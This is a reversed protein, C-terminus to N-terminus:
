RVGTAYRGAPTRLSAYVGNATARMARELDAMSVYQQGGQQMVPGTTVNIQANGGVFGGNAFAPIAAGGRAGNLYNMAFAAAKREPVIYEPGAEGVMALTPGNVVGGKAFAPVSLTPVFPIDPGPLRNFAGILKNVQRGVSNIANAIFQLVNRMAGKVTNVVGTFISKVKDGIANMAKPLFETLGIWANRIPTVVYTNFFTTIGTWTDQIWKIGTTVPERLVKNWLDVWPQVFVQYALAGLVKMAYSFENSIWALAATIPERLVKDWLLIWPLVFVAYALAYATQMSAKIYGGIWSFLTTIPGRLVNNWLDIFPQVFIPYLLKVLGSFAKSIAGGLWNFFDGIPKRFLIAMAVVAAVALVTWGVPGSFFAILGPLLTGTLFTLFGTFAASIATIAPGIAGAWGAITAGIKLGGLLGLAKGLFGLVGIVGMIAPALLLFGIGLGGVKIILGQVSPDLSRFADLGKILNDTLKELHPLLLIAIDAGFAGVKGGLVTLKDAYKNMDEAFAATMKVSMKEIADGGMNLMPILEAGGRGMLKMALEAKKPGDEMAKFKNAIDLMVDGSSRLTGDSNTISVQLERFADSAGKGTLGLQDLEDELASDGPDIKLAKIADESARKNILTQDEAGRQIIAKQGEVRDRIAKEEAAKRENLQDTIVQKQDRAARKRLKGEEAANNRIIDLARDESDELSNLSREREGDSLAQNSQIAKKRQDFERQIAKIQSETRDDAAQEAADAQDDFQDNLLQEERRYRKNLEKLRDDSENELKKVREDAQAKVIRTQEKEGEEVADKAKEMEAKTMRGFDSSSVAAAMAKSLRGLGSTVAELTTGSLAAAKKFRALMEVSVGTQQSLDHMKNGADISNKALGALGAASLLPVLSGMSGALGGAAGAMGKLGGSVRSAASGLGNISRGLAQVAGSGEVDAKIKLLAQMQAM